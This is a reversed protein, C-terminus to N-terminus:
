LYFSNSHKVALRRWAAACNLWRARRKHALRGRGALRASMVDFRALTLCAERMDARAAKGIADRRKAAIPADSMIVTRAENPTM